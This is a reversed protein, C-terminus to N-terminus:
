KLTPVCLNHADERSLQVSSLFSHLRSILAGLLSFIARVVSLVQGPLIPLPQHLNV